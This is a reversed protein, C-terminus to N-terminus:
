IMGRIRLDAELEPSDEPYSWYWFWSRPYEGHICRKTPLLVTRVRLDTREVRPWMSVISVDVRNEELYSRCQLDNVYEYICMDYGRLIEDGLKEWAAVSRELDNPERFVVQKNM